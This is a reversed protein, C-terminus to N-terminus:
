VHAYAAPQAVCENAVQHRASGSSCHRLQQLWAARIGLWLDTCCCAMALVFVTAATHGEM